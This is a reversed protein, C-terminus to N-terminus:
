GQEESEPQRDYALWTKGYDSECFPEFEDKFNAEGGAGDDWYDSVIRWESCAPIELDAFWVPEDVKNELESFEFARAEPEFRRNWAAVIDRECKLKSFRIAAVCKRCEILGAANGYYECKGGCFPCERLESM